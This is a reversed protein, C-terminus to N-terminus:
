IHAVEDFFRERFYAAASIDLSFPFLFSTYDIRYCMAPSAGFSFYIVQLFLKPDIGAVV